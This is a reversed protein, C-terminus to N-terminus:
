RSHVADKLNRLEERDNPTTQEVGNTTDPNLAFYVNIRDLVPALANTKFSLILYENLPPALPGARHCDKTLIAAAGGEERARRAVALELERVSPTMDSAVSLYGRVEYPEHPLQNRGYIPFGDVWHALGLRQTPWSQQPEDFAVFQIDRRTEPMKCGLLALLWM